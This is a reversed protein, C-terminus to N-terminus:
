QNGSAAVAAAAVAAAAGLGGHVWCPPGPCCAVFNKFVPERREGKIDAHLASMSPSAPQCSCFM